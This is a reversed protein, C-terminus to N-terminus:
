RYWPHGAVPIIGEGYGAGIIRKAGIFTDRRYGSFNSRSRDLSNTRVMGSAHIYETNGTYMAVHTARPRGERVSGFFLLDGPKLSAPFNVTDTETGYRFQLSADRTLIIGSLYYVTKVFGSCDFGKASTGGWLYPIGMFSEARSILTEPTLLRGPDLDDLKMAGSAPIFGSRGDPLMVRYDRGSIGSIRLICGAVIDSVTTKKEPDGYIDGTKGTFFIRESSKWDLYEESTLVAIADSDVWGIYRDPTQVLFWGHDRKLLRVPTGMLSQSILEADYSPVLRLNCVSVNVLGWQTGLAATDPLLMLSDIFRVGKGELYDLVSNRADRSDTEGSLIIKEGARYLNINFIGERKDKVVSAGISDLGESLLVLSDQRCGPLSIGSLLGGALLLM